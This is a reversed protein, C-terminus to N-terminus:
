FSIVLAGEGVPDTGDDVGDPFLEGVVIGLVSLRCGRVVASLWLVNWVLLIVLVAVGPFVASLREANVLLVAEGGPLNLVGKLSPEEERRRLRGLSEEVMCCEEARPRFSAAELPVVVDVVMIGVGGTIAEAVGTGAEAVNAGVVNAGVVAVFM